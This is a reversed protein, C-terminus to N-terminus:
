LGPPLIADVRKYPKKKNVPDPNGLDYFKDPGGGYDITKEDETKQIPEAEGPWIERDEYRSVLQVNPINDINIVVATGGYWDSILNNPITNAPIKWIDRMENTRLKGTAPDTTKTSAYGVADPMGKFAYVGAPHEIATADQGPIAAALGWKAIRDRNDSSRVTFLDSPYMEVNQQTQPEVPAVTPAAVAHWGLHELPMQQRNLHSNNAEIAKKYDDKYHTPNKSKPLDDPVGPFEKNSFGVISYWKQNITDFFEINKAPQSGNYALTDNREIGRKTEDENKGYDYMEALEGSSPVPWSPIPHQNERFMADSAPNTGEPYIRKLGKEEVAVDEDPNILAPDFLDKKVRLLIKEPQKSFSEDGNPNKPFEKGLGYVPAINPNGPATTWYTHGPRPTLHQRDSYQTGSSNGEDDWPLMGNEIINKLNNFHTYHYLYPDGEQLFKSWWDADVASVAEFLSIRRM